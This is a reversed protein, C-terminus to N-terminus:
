VANDFSAAPTSCRRKLAKGHAFVNRSHALQQFRDASIQGSKKVPVRGM